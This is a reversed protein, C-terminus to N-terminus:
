GIEEIKKLIWAKLSLPNTKNIEQLLKEKKAKYDFNYISKINYRLKTIKILIMSFNIYSKKRSDGLVKNNDVFRSFANINSIVFGKKLKGIYFREYYCRLRLVRGALLYKAMWNDVNILMEEAKDYEKSYFFITALSLGVVSERDKEPLFAKNDEVFKKGWDIDHVASLVATNKFAMSTIQKNYVVIGNEAGFKTLLFLELNLRDIESVKANNVREKNIVNVLYAYITKQDFYEMSRFEKFLREKLKSFLLEEYGNKLLKIVDLYMAIVFNESQYCVALEIISSEIKEDYEFDRKMQKRHYQGCTYRIRSLVYFLDINKIAHNTSESDPNIRLTEPHSYYTDHLHFLNYHYKNGKENKAELKKVSKKTHKEFTTYMNRKGLSQILMQEQLNKDLQYEAYSLYDKSLFLLGTQLVSMRSDDYALNPLIKKYVKQRDLKPSNLDDKYKYIYEFLAILAKNTNHIPTDVFRRLGKMEEDTFQQLFLLLKKNRMEVFKVHM